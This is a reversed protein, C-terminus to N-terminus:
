PSATRPNEWFLTEPEALWLGPFAADIQRCIYRENFLSKDLVYCLCPRPEGPAYYWARRPVRPTEMNQRYAIVM